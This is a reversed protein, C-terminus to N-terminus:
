FVGLVKNMRNEFQEIYFNHEKELSAITIYKAEEWVSGIRLCNWSEGKEYEQWIGNELTGLTVEKGAAEYDVIKSKVFECLTLPKPNQTSRRAM